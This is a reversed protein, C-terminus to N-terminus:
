EPDQTEDFPLLLGASAPRPPAAARGRPPGEVGARDGPGGAAEEQRPGPGGGVATIRRQARM